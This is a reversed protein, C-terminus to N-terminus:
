IGVMRRSNWLRLFLDLLFARSIIQLAAALPIRRSAAKAAERMFLPAASRKDGFPNAIRREARLV